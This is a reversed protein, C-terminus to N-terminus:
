DKITITNSIRLNDYESTIIYKGAMLNINLKAIGESDSTRTYLVGNINFTVTANALAKGQGDLVTVKFASGDKYKMELDTANLTPLVTVNYSMMLGTLPDIATLIYDGPNLNINLKATGNENTIRNYFVGNINMTINLGSVPNGEGDILSIFFQSANRYYKVLNEAILTPLVTITNEVTTGNFTTKITYNGPELNIAMKATGNEDSTRTYNVGNIEFIVTENAVGINAEFKSDNKYFKVLDQTYIDLNFTYVKIMGALNNETLDAWEVGDYSVFAIHPEVHSRINGLNQVTAKSIVAFEDGKMVPIFEDLEITIYGQYDYKGNQEYVKEGNVLITYDYDEVDTFTGVAAILLNEQAVYKNMAYPYNLTANYETERQYLKDYDNNNKMDFTMSPISTGASIDYYSIYFYGEDGWATGWSNKLIFAGDGPPTEVFNEKPYNDDWGVLCVIHDVGPKNYNYYGSTTSNYYKADPVHNYALAIAGYELLARKLQDNDTLNKREPIFVINKMHVDEPTAILPSIKGLEDYTDYEAPSVGLWSSYYPHGFFPNGSEAMAVAGYKSYKIMTNQLNNESFDYTINAYRILVSELAATIGFAWCSGMEGQNKVSSVWGWDRLDFKNPLTQVNIMNNVLDFHVQSSEVNMDYNTNNLSMEDDTFNNGSGYYECYVGYISTGNEASNNFYNDWLSLQCDYVYISLGESANNDEFVCSDLIVNGMDFYAAGGNSFGEYLGRNSTFISNSINVNKVQSTYVAGGDFNAINSTFNTNDITLHGALQLYAGGFESICNTFQSNLLTINGDSIGKEGGVDVYVAGGNKESRTNIFNCEDITIEGPLDRIGIAGATLTASLNVFTSKRIKGSSQFTYIAPSYTSTTNAFTSNEIYMLASTMYVLGRNQMDESSFTGNIIILSGGKSEIAGGKNANNNIFIDNTSTYTGGINKVAGGETRVNNDKFVVNNTTVTSYPGIYLAAGDDANGNIINLNNITINTGSAIFIRHQNSADITFGNGNITFDSKNIFIGYTLEYDTSNDYVYDQTIEISNTSSEIEEYLATFNGEASVAGISIFLIALVLLIKIIKMMKKEM